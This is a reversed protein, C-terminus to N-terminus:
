GQKRSAEQLGSRTMTKMSAATAAVVQDVGIEQRRGAELLVQFLVRDSVMIDIVSRFRLGTQPIDSDLTMKYEDDLLNDCGTVMGRLCQLTTAYLIRRSKPLNARYFSYLFLLSFFNKEFSFDDEGPANLTVGSQRFFTTRSKGTIPFVPNYSKGDFNKGAAKWKLM